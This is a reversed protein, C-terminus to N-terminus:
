YDECGAFIAYFRDLPPCFPYSSVVAVPLVPADETATEEVALAQAKEQRRKAIIEKLTM